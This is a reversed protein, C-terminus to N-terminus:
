LVVPLNKEIKRRSSIKWLIEKYKWSTNLFLHKSERFCVDLAALTKVVLQYSADLILPFPNQSCSLSLCVLPTAVTPLLNQAQPLLLVPLCLIPFLMYHLKTLLSLSLPCILHWSLCIFPRLPLSPSSLFVHVIPFTSSFILLRHNKQVSMKRKGATLAIWGLFPFVCGRGASLGSTWELCNLM